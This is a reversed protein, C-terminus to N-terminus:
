MTMRCSRRRLRVTTMLRQLFFLCVGSICIEQLLHRTSETDPTKTNRGCSAITVLLLQRLFLAFSSRSRLQCVLWDRSADGLVSGYSGCGRPKAYESSEDNLM